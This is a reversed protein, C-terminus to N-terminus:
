IVAEWMHQHTLKRYSRYFSMLDILHKVPFTKHTQELWLACLCFCRCGFCAGFNKKYVFLVRYFNLFSSVQIGRIRAFDAIHKIDDATYIEKSSYAGYKALQPFAKSMYPFSQSDTIHWHFRNLKAHAMGVITRKITEVSFYNRSTDLMFGRYRYPYM